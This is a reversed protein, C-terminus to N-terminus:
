VTVLQGLQRLTAGGAKCVFEGFGKKWRVRGEKFHLDAAAGKKRGLRNEM